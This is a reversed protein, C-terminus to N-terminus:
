MWRANVYETLRELMTHLSSPGAEGKGSILTSSNYHDPTRLRMHSALRLAVEYVLLLGHGYLQSPGQSADLPRGSQILGKIQIHYTPTQTLGIEHLHTQCLYQYVM